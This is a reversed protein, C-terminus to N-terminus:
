NTEKMIKTPDLPGVRYLIEAEHADAGFDEAQAFTSSEIAAGSTEAFRKFLTLSATNSPSITTEAFTVRRMAPRKFIDGLMLTAVGKGRYDPDVAVQWVFLTDPKGPLIYASVLGIVNEEHIAVVSTADFHAAVLMYAYRSNLDLPVCRKVLRYIGDSDSFKPIRTEILLRNL